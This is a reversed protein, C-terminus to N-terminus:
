IRFEGRKGDGAGEVPDADPIFRFARKRRLFDGFLECARQGLPQAVAAPSIMIASGANFSEAARLAAVPGSMRFAATSPAPVMPARIAACRAFAPSGTTNSSRADGAGARLVM